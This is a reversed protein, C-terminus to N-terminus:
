WLILILLMGSMAGLGVAMRCKGANEGELEKETQGLLEMSQEMARLQMQGDAYCTQRTFQLFAERDECRIPLEALAEGFEKQFTEGFSVGTNDRMSQGTKELAEGFPPPFNRAAHSCCEPLTSRGYRVESCLLELIARLIRIAKIRGNFQARYWLGIGFCGTLIMCSGLLRVM